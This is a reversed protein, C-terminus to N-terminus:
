SILIGCRYYFGEELLSSFWGWLYDNFSWPLSRISSFRSHQKAKSRGVMDRSFVLNLSRIGSSIRWAGSSDELEWAGTLELLHSENIKTPSPVLRWWYSQM